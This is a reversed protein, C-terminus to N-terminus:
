NLTFYDNIMELRENRSSQSLLPIGVDLSSHRMSQLDNERHQLM